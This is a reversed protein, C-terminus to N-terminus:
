EDKVVEVERKRGMITGCIDEQVGVHVSQTRVIEEGYQLSERKMKLVVQENIIQNLM